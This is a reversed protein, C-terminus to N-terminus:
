SKQPELANLVDKLDFIEQETHYPFQLPDGTIDFKQLYSGKTEPKKTFPKAMINTNIDYGFVEPKNAIWLVTSPLKLAAATHQAFSDMLLRKESLSILTVLNRFTDQVPITNPYGPQDERRIHVINHTEKYQEIVGMVIHSPIDRAWSYKLSQNEAGGNTQLLLIPKESNYKVSAFDIERKTLFIEPQEGNYPINFMECWIQLLHKNQKIFSTELYPDHALVKIDQNEIFEDYFYTAQNFGYSRYVHPNDLFVDPYGSVVIINADPYEKKIARVVATGMIVKGIGGNIQFIVKPM